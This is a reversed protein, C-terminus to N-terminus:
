YGAAARKEPKIEKVVGGDVTVQVKMNTKVDKLSVAKDVALVEEKGGDGALKITSAKEDVEKVTGKVKDAAAASSVLLCLAIALRAFGSLGKM